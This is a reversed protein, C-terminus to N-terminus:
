NYIHSRQLQLKWKVGCIRLQSSVVNEREEGSFVKTTEPLGELSLVNVGLVGTFVVEEVVCYGAPIRGAHLM